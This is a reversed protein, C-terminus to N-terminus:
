DSPSVAAADDTQVGIRGASGAALASVNAVVGGAEVWTGQLHYQTNQPSLIYESVRVVTSQDNTTTTRSLEDGTQNDTVITTVEESAVPSGPRQSTTTITTTTTEGDESVQTEVRETVTESTVSQSDIQGRIDTVAVVSINGTFEIERAAINDQGSWHVQAQALQTGAEFGGGTIEGDAGRREDDSPVTVVSVSGIRGRYISGNNDLVEIANGQQSLVLRVIPGGSTNEVARGGALNGNYTGSFNVDIRASSFGSGGTTWDCGVVAILAILLLSISIESLWKRKRKM